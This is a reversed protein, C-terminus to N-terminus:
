SLRFGVAELREFFKIILRKTVDLYSSGAVQVRDRKNGSDCSKTVGTETKRPAFILFGKEKRWIKKLLVKKFRKELLFFM